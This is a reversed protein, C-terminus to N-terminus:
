SLRKNSLYLAPSELAAKEAAERDMDSIFAFQRCAEDAGQLVTKYSLANQNTMTCSPKRIRWNPQIQNRYLDRLDLDSTIIQTVDPLQNYKRINQNKEQDSTTLIFSEGYRLNATYLNMAARTSIGTLQNGGLTKLLKGDM